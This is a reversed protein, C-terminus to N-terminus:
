GHRDEGFIASTPVAARITAAIDKGSVQRVHSPGMQMLHPATEAVMACAEVVIPIIRDADKRWPEKREERM